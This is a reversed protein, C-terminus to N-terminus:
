FEKQEDKSSTQYFESKSSVEKSQINEIEKKEDTPLEDLSKKHNIKM